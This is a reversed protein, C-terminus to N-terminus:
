ESIAVIELNSFVRRFVKIIKGFELGSIKNINDCNDFIVIIKLNSIQTLAKELDPINPM